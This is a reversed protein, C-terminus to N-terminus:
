GVCMNFPRWGEENDPFCLNFCHSIMEYWYVSLFLFRIGLTLYLFLKEWRNHSYWSYLMKCYVQAFDVFISSAYRRLGMIKSRPIYRTSLFGWVRSLSIHQLISSTPKVIELLFVSYIIFGFTQWSFFPYTFQPIIGCHFQMAVHLVITLCWYCSLHFLSSFLVRPNIYHTYHEFM